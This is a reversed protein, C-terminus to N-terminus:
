IEESRFIDVRDLLKMSKIIFQYLCLAVLIAFAIVSVSFFQPWCRYTLPLEVMKALAVISGALFISASTWLRTNTHQIGQWCLEYEKILDKESM